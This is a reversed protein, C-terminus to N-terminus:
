LIENHGTGDLDYRTRLRNWDPGDSQIDKWLEKIMGAMKELRDPERSALNHKQGIDEKMNYLEFDTLGTTKLWTMYDIKQSENYPLDPWGLIVYDGDRMAMFPYCGTPRFHWCAPIKRNIRKNKLLPTISCGDIVRDKPLEVGALECITPLFDTGVVLEDCVTGAHIGGPWKIIGPVRHGGEYTYRKVGRLPGPSGWCRDRGENDGSDSLREPGNDSTFVVMTNDMEGLESIARMLKGFANDIQTITGYYYKKLHGIKETNRKIGGYQITKELEDVRDNNFLEAYEPPPDIPTHPEHTWVFLLFPKNKDKRNNLWWIAEDVIVDCYWNNVPGVREGNRYFETPNSPGGFRYISNVSTAMWHSFGHEGPDPMQKDEIYSVHWKGVFCTDYGRDRLLTAITKEERKLHIDQSRHIIDYFGIRFPTRGTLIGARSPACVTGASHCDTFRVGEKAFKDINPTINIPNGYCPLDGYGLDDTLFIIFNPRKRNDEPLKDM